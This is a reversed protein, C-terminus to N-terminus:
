GQGREWCRRPRVESGFLCAMVTVDEGFLNGPHTLSELDDPEQATRVM